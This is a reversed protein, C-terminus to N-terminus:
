CSAALKIPSDSKNCPKQYSLYINIHLQKYTYNNIYAGQIPTHIGTMSSLICTFYFLFLKKVWTSIQIVTRTM